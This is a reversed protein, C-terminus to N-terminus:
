CLPTPVSLSESGSEYGIDELTLEWELANNLTTMFHGFLIEEEVYQLHQASDSCFFATYVREITSSLTQPNLDNTWFQLATVPANWISYEQVFLWNDIADM